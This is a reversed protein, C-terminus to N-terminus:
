NMKNPTVSRFEIANKHKDCFRAIDILSNLSLKDKLFSRYMKVTRLSINLQDAIQDQRYGQGLLLLVQAERRTIPLRYSQEESSALLPRDLIADICFRLEQPSFPKLVFDAAGERWAAIVEGKDAEGSMFIIPAAYGIKKLASQVELGDGEPMRLDLLICDPPTINEVATLFSKASAFCVVEFDESLFAELADRMDADDDIVIIKRQMMM